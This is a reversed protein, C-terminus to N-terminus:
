STPLAHKCAASGSVLRHCDESCCALLAVRLRHLVATCYTWCVKTCPQLVSIAATRWSLSAFTSWRSQYTNSFWGQWAHCKLKCSVSLAVSKGGQFRLMQLCHYLHNVLVFWVLWERSLSHEPHQKWSLLPNCHWRWWSLGYHLGKLQESGPPMLMCDAMNASAEPTAPCMIATYMM